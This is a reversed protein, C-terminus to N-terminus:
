RAAAACSARRGAANSWTDSEQIEAFGAAELMTAATQAAHWPSPSADLFDILDQVVGNLRSSFCGHDTARLDHGGEPRRRTLGGREFAEQEGAGVHAPEVEAVARDVLVESAQLEHSRQRRAEATVDRDDGVQGTRLDPGPRERLTADLERRTRRHREDGAVPRAGLVHDADVVRVQEGVHRGPVAHHEAVARDRHPDDGAGGVPHLGLDLRASPGLAARTHVQRALTERQM